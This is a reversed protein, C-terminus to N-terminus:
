RPQDLDGEGPCGLRVHADAVHEGQRPLIAREVDHRAESPDPSTTLAREGLSHPDATRSAMFLAIGISLPVAFILALVSTVLTGFLFALMGFKGESPAWKTSFLFGAADDRFIPWAEKGTSWAILALIVLVSLGAALAVIAFVRDGVPRKRSLQPASVSPPTAVATM